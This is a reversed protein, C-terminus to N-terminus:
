HSPTGPREGGWRWYCGCDSPEPSRRRQGGRRCFGRREPHRGCSVTLPSGWGSSEPHRRSCVALPRGRRGRGYWSCTPPEPHPRPCAALPRGRRGRRYRSCTPPEPSRHHSPALARGGRRHCYRCDPRGLCWRCPLPSLRPHMQSSPSYCSPIVLCIIVRYLSFLCFYICLQGSDTQVGVDVRMRITPAAMLAHWQQMFAPTAWSEMQPVKSPQVDLAPSCRSWIAPLPGPKFIDPLRSM